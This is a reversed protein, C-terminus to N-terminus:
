NSSITTATTSQRARDLMVAVLDVNSLLDSLRRQCERLQDASRQRESLDRLMATFYRRGDADFTSISAEIQFTEGNKRLGTVPRSADM